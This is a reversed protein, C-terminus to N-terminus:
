TSVSVVVDRVMASTAAITTVTSAIPRCDLVCREDRLEEVRVARVATITARTPSTGTSTVFRVAAAPAAPSPATVVVAAHDTDVITTVSTSTPTARASGLPPTRTTAPVTSHNDVRGAETTTRVVAPM